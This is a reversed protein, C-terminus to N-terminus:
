KIHPTCGDNHTDIIGSFSRHWLILETLAALGDIKNIKNLCVTKKLITKEKNREVRKFAFQLHIFVTYTCISKLEAKGHQNNQHGDKFFM